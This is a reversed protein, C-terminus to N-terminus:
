QAPVVFPRRSNIGNTDCYQRSRCHRGSFPWCSTTDLCHLTMQWSTGCAALVHWLVLRLAVTASHSVMNEYCVAVVVEPLAASDPLQPQTSNYRCNPFFADLWHSFDVRAKCAVLVAQTTLQVGHRIAIRVLCNRLGNPVGVGFQLLASATTPSAVVARGATRYLWELSKADASEEFTGERKYDCLIDQHASALLRPLHQKVHATCVIKQHKGVLSCRALTAADKVLVLSLNLAESYEMM